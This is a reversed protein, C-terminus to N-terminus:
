GANVVGEIFGEIVPASIRTYVGPKGPRACGEGWSVVGIQIDRYIPVQKKGGHKRKKQTTGIVERHFLPGGSDGQCSDRGKLAACVMVSPYFWAGYNKGCQSNTVIKLSAERLISTTLGNERTRGWGAVVASQGGDDFRSQDDGILRIPIAISSPVPQNLQLVAADNEFTDSNWHPHQRVEAVFRRNQDSIERRDAKGVLVTFQEPKFNTGDFDEVCHAATLVYQPDILSGGCQFTGEPSRVLVLVAFRYKGQRVPKGGVVEVNVAGRDRRPKAADAAPAISGAVVALAIFLILGLFSGRRLRSSRTRNMRTRLIVLSMARVPICPPPEGGVSRGRAARLEDGNVNLSGLQRARILKGHEECLM